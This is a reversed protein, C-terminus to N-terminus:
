DESPNTGPRHESPDSVQSDMQRIRTRTQYIPWGRTKMSSPTLLDSFVHPPQPQPYLVRGQAKAKSVAPKPAWGVQLPETNGEARFIIKYSSEDRRLPISPSAQRDNFGYPNM